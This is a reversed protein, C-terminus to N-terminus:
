VISLNWQIKKLFQPIFRYYFILSLFKSLGIGSETELDATSGVRSSHTSIMTFGESSDSSVSMTEFDLGQENLSGMSSASMLASM